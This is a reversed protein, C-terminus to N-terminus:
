RAGEKKWKFTGQGHMLGARWDGEYENGNEFRMKGYGAPHLDTSIAGEYTDGNKFNIVGHHPTKLEM